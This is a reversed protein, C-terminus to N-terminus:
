VGEPDASGEHPGADSESLALARFAHAAPSLPGPRHVLGVERIIRPTLACIRVGDAASAEALERPLIAIGAGARVLPAIAERHDTEVAVHATLGMSDLADELQRRTSTGLPTTIIPQEALQEISLTQPSRGGSRRQDDPHAGIMAPMLAVFEQAALQHTELDDFRLPLEAFGLESSGNRIRTGVTEIDDPETLRVTVRPYRRRFRGILAATPFVALTPLSVLDLHGAELGVVAAVAARATAADRLAQRAHEVLAEGAATLRAPRSAVRHFLEVQLEKELSRVAQSLSPQAVHMASAAKTFGGHDVVAVVYSLQRLEM